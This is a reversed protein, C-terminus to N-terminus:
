FCAVDVKPAVLLTDEDWKAFSRNRARAFDTQRGGAVNQRPTHIVCSYQLADRRTLLYRNFGYRVASLHTATQSSDMRSIRIREPSTAIRARSRSVGVASRMQCFKGM